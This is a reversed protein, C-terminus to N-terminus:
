NIKSVIKPSLNEAASPRWRQVTKVDSSFLASVSIERRLLCNWQSLVGRQFTIKTKHRVIKSLDVCFHRVHISKQM